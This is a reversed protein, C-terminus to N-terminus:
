APRQWIWYVDTTEQRVRTGFPLSAEWGAIVAEREASTLGTMTMRRPPSFLLAATM